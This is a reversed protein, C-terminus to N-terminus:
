RRTKKKRGQKPPKYPDPTGTKIPPEKQLSTMHEILVQSAPYRVWFDKEAEQMAFQEKPDMYLNYFLPIPYTNTPVGFGADHERTVMKWNRWKVGYIADGNYIVVSERNSNEQAGLFFESQDVSDLIRDKPVKADAFRALTTYLDIEHVIENSISRATIKEPWRILFPTRLSAELGTFYTGRWPGSFGQHPIAMEPGNDSTFIVITNERIGLQDITDLIAGVYHDTQALVDAWRGNRTKGDFEPSAEVPM